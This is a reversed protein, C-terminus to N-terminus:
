ACTRCRTAASRSAILPGACWRAQRRSGPAPPTRDDVSALEVLRGDPTMMMDSIVIDYDGSNATRNYVGVNAVRARSDIVVRKPYLNIDGMGGVSGEPIHPAAPATQAVAALPMAGLCLAACALSQLGPKWMTESRNRSM